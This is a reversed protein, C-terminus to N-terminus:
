IWPEGDEWFIDTNNEVWDVAWSGWEPDVGMAETDFWSSGVTDGKTRTVWEPFNALFLAFKEAQNHQLWSVADELQIDTSFHNSSLSSREREVEENDDPNEFESM